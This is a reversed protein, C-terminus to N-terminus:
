SPACCQKVLEGAIDKLDLQLDIAGKEFAAKPMGYVVCSKEDQGITYAGNSKLQFMAEAGDKGMGSLMVAVTKDAALKVVSAFLVDVSPMHGCVKGSDAVCCHYGDAAKELTLHADGPAIYVHGREVTMGDQAEVVAVQCLQDLRRAFNATFQKPMHQVILIPPMDAPLAQLVCRLAEVGGTSAGMVILERNSICHTKQDIPAISAFTDADYPKIRAQAAIKVKSILEESMDELSSQIDNQPKAVFDVAGIELAQFTIDAGAQTLSSVMLVPMPRLSMIKKLFEIGNMKPMEIDLTLVDPNLKKILERAKHADPATGVVHIGPDRELITTLLQRILASDDVVLVSIIDSM